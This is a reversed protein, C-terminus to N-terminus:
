IKRGETAGEEEDTPEVPAWQSLCPSDLAWSLPVLLGWSGAQLRQECGSQGEM